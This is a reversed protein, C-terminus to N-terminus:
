PSNDVLKKKLPKLFDFECGYFFFTFKSYKVLQILGFKCGITYANIGFQLQAEVLLLIMNLQSYIWLRNLVNYHKIM